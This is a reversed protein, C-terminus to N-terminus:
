APEQHHLPCKLSPLPPHCTCIREADAMSQCWPIVYTRHFEDRRKRSEAEVRKMWWVVALAVIWSPISWLLGTVIENM